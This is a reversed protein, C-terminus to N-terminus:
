IIIPWHDLVEFALADLLPILDATLHLFVVALQQSLGPDLVTKGGLGHDELSGDFPGCLCLQGNTM